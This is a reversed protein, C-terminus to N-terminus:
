TICKLNQTRKRNDFRPKRYRTKRNRRNRRCARRTDMEERIDCRIDSQACFLEEDETSASMGVHEGGPDLGLKVYQTYNKVDYLLQITFPNKRVIRAKKEKLLLRVKGNNSTPMIPKGNKNLVFIKM